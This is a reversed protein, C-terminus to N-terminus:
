DIDIKNHHLAFSRGAMSALFVKNRLSIKQVLGPGLPTVTVEEMRRSGNVSTIPITMGNVLDGAQVYRDGVWIPGTTSCELSDDSWSICVMEEIITESLTVKKHSIEGTEPDRVPMTDGVQIDGARRGDELLADVSVCGSSGGGTFTYTFTVTCNNSYRTAGSGDTVRCRYTDTFSSSVSGSVTVTATNEGAVMESAHGLSVKEWSYSYPSMGGTKSATITVSATCSSGSSACGASRTSPVSVALDSDYVYNWSVVINGSYATYGADDTVKVRFTTTNGDNSESITRSARAHKQSGGTIGLTAGQGSVHELTYNYPPIGGTAAFDVSASATCSSTSSHCIASPTTDGSLNVALDSIYNYEFNVVCNGSYVSKGSADTVRCRFTSLYVGSTSRSVTVTDTNQGAIMTANGAVREWAYTYPPQGLSATCTITTQAVCASGSTDCSATKGSPVSASVDSDYTYHANFTCANSVVQNPQTDDVTCTITSQQDGSTSDQVTVTDTGQGAIITATGSTIAWTYTYGPFGGGVSVTITAQANCSSGSTSCSGSVSTPLSASLPASPRSFKKAFIDALDVGDVTFGTDGTIRLGVSLPAFVESLDKDDDTDYFGTLDVSPDGAERLEFINRLDTGLLSFETTGLGM